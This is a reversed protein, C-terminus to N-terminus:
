QTGAWFRGAPDVAGDNFQVNDPMGAPRLSPGSIAGDADTLLFGAKTALVYGGAARPAAAGLSVGVTTIVSDGDQPSFRHLQGADIDVWIVCGTGPEWVPREGLEAAPAVVEWALAGGSTGVNTM